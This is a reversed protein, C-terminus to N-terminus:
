GAGFLQDNPIGASAHIQVIKWDGGEQHFVASWRPSFSAGNPLTITPFAVGWGVPGDSYAEVLSQSVTVASGLALAEAKLFEGVQEGGIVESPDTGVLRCEPRSSIFRDVYTADGRTVADFWGTIIDRLEPAAQM